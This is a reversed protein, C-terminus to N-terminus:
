DVAESANVIMRKVEILEQRIRRYHGHEIPAEEMLLITSDVETNVDLLGHIYETVSTINFSSPDIKSRIIDLAGQVRDVLDDRETVSHVGQCFAIKLSIPTVHESIVLSLQRQTPFPGSEGVSQVAEGGDDDADTYEVLIERCM